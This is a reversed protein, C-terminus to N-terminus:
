ELDLIYVPTSKGFAGMKKRMSPRVNAIIYKVGDIHVEHKLASFPYNKETQITCSQNGSAVGGGEFGAGVLKDGVQQADFSLISNGTKKDVLICKFDKRLKLPM